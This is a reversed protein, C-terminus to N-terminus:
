NAEQLPQGNLDFREIEADTRLEELLATVAERGLEQELDARADEFAPVATRRDEVQIVHWGFRSEVPEGSVDGPAMAFAADAFPGVMQDKTFWGLDGGQEGSPGTSHEAALAAFDAGGDLEAILEAATAEDEVLIHRAKVEERAFGEDEKRTEYAARLAEDTTAEAVTREILRNRLILREADRIAEQVAPDDALDRAEAANSLLATNIARDRLAGFVAEFPMQQYQQPLSSVERQVDSRTIERDDVRAVVPDEQAAAPLVLTTALALVAPTISRL